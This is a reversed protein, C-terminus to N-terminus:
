QQYTGPQELKKEILHNDSKVIAAATRYGCPVLQVM